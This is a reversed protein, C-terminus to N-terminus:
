LNGSDITDLGVLSVLDLCAVTRASHRRGSGELSCAHRKGTMWYVKVIQAQKLALMLAVASGGGLGAGLSLVFM